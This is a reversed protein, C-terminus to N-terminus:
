RVETRMSTKDFSDSTKKRGLSWLVLNMYENIVVERYPKNM